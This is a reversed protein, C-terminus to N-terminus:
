FYKKGKAESSLLNTSNSNGGYHSNMMLNNAISKSEYAINNASSNQYMTKIKSNKQRSNIERLMKNQQPSIKENLNENQYILNKSSKNNNNMM